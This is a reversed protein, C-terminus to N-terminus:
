SAPVVATGILTVGDGNQSQVATIPRAAVLHRAFAPLGFRQEYLGLTVAGMSKLTLALTAAACDSSMCALIVSDQRAWEPAAAIHWDKIDIATVGAAKPIVLFMQDTAVSGHLALAVRRTGDGSMSEHVSATPAMFQRQGAPAVYVLPTRPALRWPVNSFNAVARMPAPPPALADLAWYARGKVADEVYTVNLRQPAMASYSPELGQIVAGAVATVFLLGTTVLWARHSLRYRALIPVLASVGTAFPVTFLPHLKLGMVAEGSVGISSWFLLAILAAILLAVHGVAGDWRTRAFSAALLLTAAVASPILFYPSFGPVLWAVVVGLGAMWLWIASATSCSPAFRSVLVALAAIALGLSWRMAAPYAYTPEPMRSVLVALEYLSFGLVAAGLVLVPLVAFARLVDRVAVSGTRFAAIVLLLFAVIALPFAWSKPARLLVRGLVDLYIADPGRLQAFDTQELARAIGLMNEGHQQLSVPDLHARTDLATHYHAVQGVFAFNFSPFGDHIFLTLDTDNPLVRYIEPYLSSTAYASVSRAYLDILRGDGASTQFLFSPGQNGRAEVNVVAGVRAKLQPNHLFAAAGLLDAEEGDTLLALIPHRSAAGGSRLARATEIVTAVGSEDDSAGPGAPVSDYHAMLLIAKGTGPKVEALVDTVAACSVLGFSDITKCGFSRYISPRMGLRSLEQVVRARVAANEATSVPHPREPGLIRRLVDEARTASFVAPSAGGSLPTPRATGDTQLFWFSAALALCALTVVIRLGGSEGGLEAEGLHVVQSKSINKRDNRL